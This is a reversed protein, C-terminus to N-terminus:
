HHFSSFMNLVEWIANWARQLFLRRILRFVEPLSKKGVNHVTQLYNELLMWLRAQSYNMLLMKTVMGLSNSQTFQKM